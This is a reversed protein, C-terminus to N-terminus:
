YIKEVMTNVTHLFQGVKIKQFNNFNVNILNIEDGGMPGHEISIIYNKKNDYFLRHIEIDSFLNKDNADNYNILFNKLFRIKEQALNRFRFEGTSFM